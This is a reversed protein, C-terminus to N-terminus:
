SDLASQYTQRAIQRAFALILGIAFTTIGGAITSLGIVASMKFCIALGLWIILVGALYLTVSLFTALAYAPVQAQELRQKALRGFHPRQQTNCGPCTVEKDVEQEPVTIALGCNVCSCIQMIEGKFHHM